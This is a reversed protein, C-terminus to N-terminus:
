LHISMTFIDNIIYVINAYQRSLYIFLHPLMLFSLIYM